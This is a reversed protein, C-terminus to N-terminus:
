RTEAPGRTRAEVGLLGELEKVRAKLRKNEAYVEGLMGNAARAHRIATDFNDAEQEELQREWDYFRDNSWSMAFM